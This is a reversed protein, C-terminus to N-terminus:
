EGVVGECFLGTRIYPSSVMYVSVSYQSLLTCLAYTAACTTAKNFCKLSAICISCILSAYGTPVQQLRFTSVIIKELEEAHM